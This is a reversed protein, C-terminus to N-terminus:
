TPSLGGLVAEQWCSALSPPSLWSLPLGPQHSCHGPLGEGVTGVRGCGPVWFRRFGACAVMDGNSFLNLPSQGFSPLTPHVIMQILPGVASSERRNPYSTIWFSAEYPFILALAWLGLM